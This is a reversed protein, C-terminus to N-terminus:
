QIRVEFSLMRLSWWGTKLRITPVTLYVVFWVKWRRRLVFFIFSGRTAWSGFNLKPRCKSRLILCGWLCWVNAIISISLKFNVLPLTLQCFTFLAGALIAYSRLSLWMPLMWGRSIVRRLSKKRIIFERTFIRKLRGSLGASGWYKRLHFTCWWEMVWWKAYIMYLCETRDSSRGIISESGEREGKRGRERNRKAWNKLILICIRTM